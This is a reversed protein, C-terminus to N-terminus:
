LLVISYKLSLCATGAAAAAAINATTTAGATTGVVVDDDVDEEIARVVVFSFRGDAASTIRSLVRGGTTSSSLDSSCM